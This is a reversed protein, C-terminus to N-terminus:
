LTLNKVCDLVYDMWSTLRLDLHITRYKHVMALESQAQRRTDLYARTKDREDLDEKIEGRTRMM